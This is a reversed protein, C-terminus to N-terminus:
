IQGLDMLCIPTVNKSEVEAKLDDIKNHLMEVDRSESYQSDRLEDEERIGRLKENEERMLTIQTILSKKKTEITELEHVVSDIKEDKQRIQKELQDRSSKLKDLEKKLTLNEMFYQENTEQLKIVQEEKEQSEKTSQQRESAKRSLEFLENKLEENAIELEEVIEDKSRLSEELDTIRITLIDKTEELEAESQQYLKTSELLRRNLKEIRKMFEGIKSDYLERQEDLLEDYNKQKEDLALKLNLITNNKNILFSTLYKYVKNSVKSILKKLQPFNDENKLKKLIRSIEKPNEKDINFKVPNEDQDPMGQLYRLNEIEEKFLEVRHKLRVVQSELDKSQVVKKKKEDKLNKIQNKLHNVTKTFDEDNSALKRTVKNDVKSHYGDIPPLNLDESFKNKDPFNPLIATLGPVFSFPIVNGFTKLFQNRTINEIRVKERM